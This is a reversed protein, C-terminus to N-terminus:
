GGKSEDPYDAATLGSASAAERRDADEALTLAGETRTVGARISAAQEDTLTKYLKDCQAPSIMKKVFIQADTLGAAKMAKETEAEDAWKRMSRGHVLKWGPIAHGTRIDEQARERLAKIWAEIAPLRSLCDSVEDPTLAEADRNGAATELAYNALARCAHRYRCFRCQDNGPLFRLGTGEHLERLAEAAAPKMADTLRYLDEISVTWTQQWKLPPQVITMRVWGIGYAKFEEAAARAYILLQLNGIAKVWVGRGTKLDVIELTGQQVILADSTGFCEPALWSCDLHHEVAFAAAGDAAQLVYDTYPKVEAAIEDFDPTMGEAGEPAKYPEGTLVSEAVAHAISGELAYPSTEEPMPATMAVSAPCKLWRAAASPSLLAHAKPAM